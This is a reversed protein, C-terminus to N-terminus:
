KLIGERRRPGFIRWSGKTPSNSAYRVREMEKKPSSSGFDKTAPLVCAYIFLAEGFTVSAVGKMGSVLSLEIQTKTHSHLSAMGKTAINRHQGTGLPAQMLSLPPEGNQIGGGEGM